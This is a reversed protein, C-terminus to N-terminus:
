GEHSGGASGVAAIHSQRISGGSKSARGLMICALLAVVLVLVDVWKGPEGRRWAWLLSAISALGLVYTVVAAIKGAVAHREIALRDIAPLDQVARKAAEGTMVAAATALASVFFLGRSAQKMDASGGAFGWILLCIGILVGIVPVHGVILHARHRENVISESEM